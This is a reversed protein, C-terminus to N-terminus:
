KKLLFIKKNRKSKKTQIEEEKNLSKNEVIYFMLLIIFFFPLFTPLVFMLFQLIIFLNSKYLNDVWKNRLQHYLCLYSTYIIFINIYAFIISLTITPTLPNKDSNLM